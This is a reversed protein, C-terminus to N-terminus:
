CRSSLPAGAPPPPVVTTAQPVLPGFSHSLRYLPPMIISPFLPFHTLPCSILPPSHPSFMPPPSPLLSPRLAYVCIALWSFSRSLLPSRRAVLVSCRTLQVPLFSWQQKAGPTPPSSPSPLILLSLTTDHSTHPSLLCHYPCFVCTNTLRSIRVKKTLPTNRSLTM